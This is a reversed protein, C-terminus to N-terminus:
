YSSAPFIRTRRASDMRSGRASPRVARDRHSGTYVFLEAPAHNFQDTNMSRIVCLEDAVSHLHPIADSMWV